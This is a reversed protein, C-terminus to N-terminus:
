RRPGEGFCSVPGDSGTEWLEVSSFFSESRTGVLRYSVLTGKSFNGDTRCGCVLHECVGLRGVDARRNQRCPVFTHLRTTRAGHDNAAAVWCKHYKKSM